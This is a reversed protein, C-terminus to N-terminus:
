ASCASGNTSPCNRPTRSTGSGRSTASSTRRAVDSAVADVTKQVNDPEAVNCHYATASGGGEVISAATKQAAAEDIDLCAVNAGESGLRRATAQAIGSGAGTVIAIKGTFRDM